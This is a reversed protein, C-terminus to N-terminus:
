HFISYKIFFLYIIGFINKNIMYSTALSGLSLILMIIIAQKKSVKSSAIARFKKTPHKKDEEVDLLDNFIYISSALLSFLIFAIFLQLWIYLDFNFAFFAPAFIFLNKIYQHIRLLSRM